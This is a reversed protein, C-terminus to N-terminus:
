AVICAIARRTPSTNATVSLQETPVTKCLPITLWPRPKRRGSGAGLAQDRAPRCHLIPSELQLLLLIPRRMVSAQPDENSSLAALPWPQHVNKVGKEEAIHVCAVRQTGWVGGDITSRRQVGCVM